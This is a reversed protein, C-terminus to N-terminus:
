NERDPDRGAQRDPVDLVRDEARSWACVDEGARTGKSSWSCRSRAPIREAAMKADDAQTFKIGSRDAVDGDVDAEVGRWGCVKASKSKLLLLYKTLMAPDDGRLLMDKWKRCATKKFTVQMQRSLDEDHVDRTFLREYSAVISELRYFLFGGSMVGVLVSLSIAAWIRGTITGNRMTNAQSRIPGTRDHIFPALSDKYAHSKAAGRPRQKQADGRMAAVWAVTLGLFGRQGGILARRLRDQFRHAQAIAHRLEDDAGAVAFRRGGFRGIILLVPVPNAIQM